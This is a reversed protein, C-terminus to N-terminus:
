PRNGAHDRHNRLRVNADTAASLDGRERAEQRRAALDGCVACGEVPTPQLEPLSLFVAAGVGGGPAGENGTTM